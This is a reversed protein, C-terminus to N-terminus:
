SEDEGASIAFDSDITIKIGPRLGNLANIFDAMTDRPSAKIIEAPGFSPPATNLFGALGAIGSDDGPGVSVVVRDSSGTVSGQINEAILLRGIKCKLCPCPKNEGYGHGSNSQEPM